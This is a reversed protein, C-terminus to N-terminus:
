FFSNNLFRELQLSSLHLLLSEFAIVDFDQMPSNQFRNNVVNPSFWPLFLQHRTHESIM